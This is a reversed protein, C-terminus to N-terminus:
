DLLSTLEDCPIQWRSPSPAVLGSRGVNPRANEDLAFVGNAVGRKKASRVPTRAGASSPRVIKSAAARSNGQPTTASSMTSPRNQKERVIKQKERDQLGQSTTTRRNQKERDQLRGIYKEQRSVKDKLMSNEREMESNKRLIDEMSTRSSELESEMAKRQQRENRLGDCYHTDKDHIENELRQAVDRTEALQKKYSKVAEDLQNARMFEREYDGQYATTQNVMDRLLNTRESLTAKARALEGDESALREQAASLESRVDDVIHQLDSMEREHLVRADALESRIAAVADEHERTSNGLAHKVRTLETKVQKVEEKREKAYATLSKMKKEQDMCRSESEALSREIREKELTINEMTAMATQMEHQMKSADQEQALKSGALEKELETIADELDSVVDAGRTEIVMIQAEYETRLTEVESKHNSVEMELRARLDNAENEKLSLDELVDELKQELMHKDKQWASGDEKLQINLERLQSRLKNSVGKEENLENQVVSMKQSKQSLAEEHDVAMQELENELTSIQQEQQSHGQQLSTHESQLTAHQTQLGRLKESTDALQMNTRDLDETLQSHREELSLHEASLTTYETQVDSLKKNTDALQGKTGALEEALDGNEKDLLYNAAKFEERAIQHSSRLENLEQKMQSNTELSDTYTSEIAATAERCEQIISEMEVVKAAHTSQLKLMESTLSQIATSKNDIQSQLTTKENQYSEATNHQQSAFDDRQNQIEDQIAQIAQEHEMKSLQFDQLLNAVKQEKEHLQETLETRQAKMEDQLTQVAQGHELGSLQQDQLLDAIQDEKGKLAMNLQEEMSKWRGEESELTLQMEKVKRELDEEEVKAEELQGDRQRLLEVVKGYEGELAKKDARANEVMGILEESEGELEEVKLQRENSEGAVTEIRREQERIRDALAEVEKERMKLHRELQGCRKESEDRTQEVEQGAVRRADDASKRLARREKDIEVFGRHLEDCKSQLFNSQSTQEELLQLLESKSEDTHSLADELRTRLDSNELRLQLLESSDVSHASKIPPQKSPRSKKSSSLLKMSKM